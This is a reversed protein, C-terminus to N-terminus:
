TTRQLVGKLSDSKKPMFLERGLADDMFTLLLETENRSRRKGEESLFYLFLGIALSAMLLYSGWAGIGTSGRFFILLLALVGTVVCVKLVSRFFRWVPFSPGIFASLDSGGDALDRVEMVLQPTWIRASGSPYRLVLKREVKRLRLDAPNNAKIQAAISGEFSQRDEAIRFKFRPRFPAYSMSESLYVSGIM